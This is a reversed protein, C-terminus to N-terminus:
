TTGLGLKSRGTSFVFGMMSVFKKIATGDLHKTGLDALNEKTDVKYLKVQRSSIKQQLWLTNVDLHRIKGVGRRSGIGKAASSDVHLAIGLEFGFDRAAAQMGIGLCSAKVMAFWEAEASSLSLPAQTTSSLKIMHKGLMLVAASTSKRTEKCGAHDSDSYVTVEKQPSQRYMRQQMRPVGLLYRGCKKLTM